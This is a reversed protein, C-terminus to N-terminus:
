PNKGLENNKNELRRKKFFDQMLMACFDALIGNRVQIEHTPHPKGFLNVWSGNAGHRIDPAGWVLTSVRSLLMAGACMSCPEITCYLTAGNLRWNDEAAEAVTICLMEAHATADRLMEVQNHGRAIVKGEKVLIAGVPVEGKVFAKWAEKLAALMYTEDENAPQIRFPFHEKLTENM